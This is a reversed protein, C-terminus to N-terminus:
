THGSRSKTSTFFQNEISLISQPTQRDDYSYVMVDVIWRGTVVPVVGMAIANAQITSALQDCFGGSTPQWDTSVNFAYFPTLLLPNRHNLPTETPSTIGNASQWYAAAIRMKRITQPLVAAQASVLDKFFESLVTTLSEGDMNTQVTRSLLPTIHTPFMVLPTQYIFAQNTSVGSILNANRTIYAGGWADQLLLANLRYFDFDLSLAKDVPANGSGTDFALRTGIGAQMGNLWNRSSAQANLRLAPWLLQRWVQLEFTGLQASEVVTARYTQPATFPPSGDVTETAEPDFILWDANSFSPSKPKITEQGSLTFGYEAFLTVLGAPVTGGNLGGAYSPNTTFLFDDPDTSFDLRQGLRDLILTSFSPTEQRSAASSQQILTSLLYTYTKAPLAGPLVMRATSNWADQIKAALNALAAAANKAALSAQGNVIDPVQALDHSIAPWVVSFAALAQIVQTNDRMGVVCSTKPLTTESQNFMVELTMQDQAAFQRSTTFGYDWQAFTKNADLSTDASHASQNSITAPGPYGRLPVPIQLQGIQGQTSPSDAIPLIFTLWSSNQYGQIGQVSHIDFEMQNVQYDLGLTVLTQAAPDKTSFLSTIRSGTTSMAGKAASFSLQPILQLGNPPAATNLVYSGPLSNADVSALQEAFLDEGGFQDAITSLLDGTTPTYSTNGITVISGPAFFGTRQLNAEIVTSFDALMWAAVETLTGLAAPAVTPTANIASSPRFLSPSVANISMGSALTRVSIGFATAISALTDVSTTTYTKSPQPAFSVIVNSQIINPVEAIIQALYVESVGTEQALSALPHAPDNAIGTSTSVTRAVLKGSIQPATKPDSGAGTGEVQLDMQVLSQVVYASSLTVLLQQQMADIADGMGTGNGDDLIPLVTRALGAAIDAKAAIISNISTAVTSDTMSPVAYTPSLILDVAQLFAQNWQDPDAGQFTQTKGATWHLGNVSDYTPVAIGVSSYSQTTLPPVAFFRTSSPTVQYTFGSGNTTFNVVWLSRMRSSPTSNSGTAGKLSPKSIVSSGQIQNPGTAVKHGPFAAEFDEAFQTLSQQTPTSGAAFPQAVIVAPASVVRPSNLFAASVRAPDRSIALTVSLNVIPQEDAPTANAILLGTVPPAIFTRASLLVSQAFTNISFIEAVSMSSLNTAVRTVNIRAALLGISDNTNVQYTTGDFVVSQGAKLLRPLTANTAAFAGTTIGYRQVCQSISEGALSTMAPTALTAGLRVVNPTTAIQTAFQPISLGFANALSTFTSALTPTIPQGGISIPTSAFLGPMTANVTALDNVSWGAFNGAIGSFTANAMTQYIAADIAANDAVYPIVLQAGRVFNVLSNNALVQEVSTNNYAAVSALTDGQNIAYPRNEIFLATGVAWIGPILQNGALMQEVPTGQQGPPPGFSSALVALSDQDNTLVSAITLELSAPFIGNFYQNAMAVDVPTAPTGLGTFYNAADTLSETGTTLYSNTGLVLTLNASLPQTANSSALGPVGGSGDNLQTEALVALANLCLPSDSPVALQRVASNLLVAAAVLVTANKQDALTAVSIGTRAIISQASDGSVALINFPVVLSTGVGFLLDAGANANIQGLDSFSTPYGAPNASSSCDLLQNIAGYTGQPGLPVSQMVLQQANNMFVYASNAIGLMSLRASAGVMDANSIPGLTTSLYCTVDSQQLQYSVSQYREIAKSARRAAPTPISTSPAGALMQLTSADPVFQDPAVGIVVNMNSQAPVLSANPLFRYSSTVAPWSALGIIEDTYGIGASLSPLISGATQNGLVDQFSLSLSAQADAVVGAYPNELPSPLPGCSIAENTTAFPFISLLQRYNWPASDDDSQRDGIPGAPLGVKSESFYSNGIVQFGLLNFLTNLAQQPTEDMSAPAMPNTRVVDFGTRGPPLNALIRLSHAGIVITSNPALIAIVSNVEGLASLDVGKATAIRGFTDGLAVVYSLQGPINMSAGVALLNATTANLTALSAPDLFDFESAISFLTDGPNVQQVCNGALQLLADPQLLGGTAVIQVGLNAVSVGARLAISGFSDDAQVIQGLVNSGAVLTGVVTQNLVALESVDLVIYPLYQAVISTLTDSALIKHTVAEFFLSHAGADVNDGVLMANNFAFAVPNAITQEDLVIVLQLTAERGAAFLTGPLGLTGDATVYRLYYGGSKVTSCEWLLQLFELSDGAQLTACPADLLGTNLMEIPSGDAAFQPGGHSETSLNTKLLFSNSRDIADSVVVGQTANSMQEPYTIYLKAGGGQSKLYAWTALLRQMGSQDAGLVLYTGATGDPPLQITVGVSTAFRAAVLTTSSVSGDPQTTGVKGVYPLSGSQSAALLDLLASPFTWISTQNVKQGQVTLGDPIDPTHWWTIAGAPQQDPVYSYAALPQSGNQGVGSVFQFTQFDAVRQIEAPDLPMSLTGGPVSLWPVTGNTALAFAYDSALPASVPFEQGILAYLPYALTPSPVPLGTFQPAPLRLGNFMFRSAMNLATTFGGSSALLANLRSLQMGPIATLNISSATFLGQLLAIRDILQELSLDFAQAIGNLSEGTAIPHVVDPATMAARSALLSTQGMAANAALQGVTLKFQRCINGISSAYPVVIITGADLPQTASIQGNWQQLAQVAAAESHADPPFLAAAINTLTDGTTATYDLLFSSSTPCQVNPLTVPQNADIGIPQNSSLLAALTLGPYANLISAFTDNAKTQYTANRQTQLPISLKQGASVTLTPNANSLISPEFTSSSGYWYSIFGNFSDGARTQTALDGLTITQGPNLVTLSDMNASLLNTLDVGFQGAISTFSDTSVATFSIDGLHLTTGQALIDGRGQNAFALALPSVSLPILLVAGITLANFNVSPNSAILAALDVGFEVAISPGTEGALVTHLIRMAPITVKTAPALPNFNVGPNATVLAASTVGFCALLGVLTDGAISTYIVTEVPIFVTQGAIPEQTTYAPNSAQLEDTSVNFLPAITALTDGQRATYNNDYQNALGSLSTSQADAASIAATTSGLLDKASQVVGKALMLFYYRFIFIALSDGAVTERASAQMNNRAAFQAALEAFYQQVTQEYDGQPVRDNWFEISYGPVTMKIEPIMAMLAMDTETGSDTSRPVISFVLNNSEFLTILAQYSFIRDPVDSQKLADLIEDLVAASVSDHEHGIADVVWELLFAMLVNADSTSDLSTNLGMLLALVPSSTGAPTPPGGPFSFDSTLAQSILPIATVQIPIAGTNNARVRRLLQHRLQLRRAPRQRMLGFPRQRGIRRRARYSRRGPLSPAGGPSTLWPTTSDSGIVFSETITAGFSFHIRIFLIKISVHVSVGASISILIARYSEVDLTVSAYVVLSVGAQIIGFDVTAYVNGVVAITGTLHYFREAPLNQQNPNFWALVGQLMGGVTISIGGSLIGVSITKGVGVQLAFGFELVPSFNGNYIVPVSTSTQGNLVAFYFGGYGIFPFVQVSFSRSFDTLSPPFGADVRFNGNTYIDITIIPLTISVEGLEIHRMADPLTLEIHYVGITDSIKRYLIEFRLGALAGARAGSLQILLGYLNPDNFVLSLQVTSMTTFRTGILWNSGADYTLGPLQTVPNQNPNGTPLLASELAKIVADMTPPPAARLSLHQGIGLYELDFTQTGTGPVVPPAENLPDWALPPNDGVFLGANDSGYTQGLFRGSLQLSFKAKGYQRTYILVFRTLKLFGLDVIVDVDVEIAKTALTVKVTLNPLAIKELANWPATLSVNKGPQAFSLLFAFLDGVSSNDLSIAVYASQPQAADKHYSVTLSRYAFTIDTSTPSFVYSVQLILNNIDIEGKVYGSYTAPDTSKQRSSQLLFNASITPLVDIKWDATAMVMYTNAATDFQCQLYYLFINPVAASPVFPLLSKAIDVLKLPSPPAITGTFVWASAGPQSVATIDVPINLFTISSNITVTTGSSTRVFSLGLADLEILTLGRGLDISWSGQKATIEGNFTYTMDIPSLTANLTTISLGSKPLVPLGPVIQLLTSVDIDKANSAYVILNPVPPTYGFLLSFGALFALDPNNNLYFGGSIGVQFNASSDVHFKLTVGTLTALNAPLLSISTQASLTIQIYGAHAGTNDLGVQLESLTFTNGIPFRAPVLNALQKGMFLPALQTLNTFPLTLGDNDLIPTTAVPIPLPFSVPITDVGMGKTAIVGQVSGSGPDTGGSAFQLQITVPLLGAQLSAPVVPTNLIFVPVNSLRSSWSTIAGQLLGPGSPWLDVFSADPVPAGAFQLTPGAITSSAIFAANQFLQTGPATQALAPFATELVTGDPLAVSLQLQATQQGDISFTAVATPNTFGLFTGNLTGVLVITNGPPQASSVAISLAASPFLVIDALLTSIPASGLQNSALLNLNTNAADLYGNSHLASWLAQIPNSVSSALAPSKPSM